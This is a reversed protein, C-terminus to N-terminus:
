QTKHLDEFKNFYLVTFEVFGFTGNVVCTLTEILKYLTRRINPAIFNLSFVDKERATPIISSLRILVNTSPQSQYFQHHTQTETKQTYTM